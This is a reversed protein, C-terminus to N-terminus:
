ISRTATRWGRIARRFTTPRASDMSSCSAASPPMHGQLDAGDTPLKGFAPDAYFKARDAFALKKAEIFLHFWDASGRGMKRVDYPEILNLMQLAAIGQGNPPLEWVDYGRYNTSVPEVWDSHHDALDKLSFYGGNAESFSVIKQAIPGKYFAAPRGQRDGSLQGGPESQSVDRGRGAAPRRASLDQGHRAAKAASAAM